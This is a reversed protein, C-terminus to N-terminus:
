LYSTTCCSRNDGDGYLPSFYATRIVSRRNPNIESKKYTNGCRNFCTLLSTSSAQHPPLLPPIDIEDHNNNHNHDSMIIPITYYRVM